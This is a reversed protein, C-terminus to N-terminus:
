LSIDRGASRDRDLDFGDFSEGQLLYGKFAPGEGAPREFDEAAVVV